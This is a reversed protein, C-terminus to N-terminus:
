RERPWHQLVLSCLSRKGNAAHTQYCCPELPLSLIRLMISAQFIDSHYEPHHHPHQSALSLNTCGLIYYEMRFRINKFTARFFSHMFINSIFSYVM